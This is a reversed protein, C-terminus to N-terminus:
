TLRMEKQIVMAVLDPRTHFILPLPFFIHFLARCILSPQKERLQHCAARSHCRDTGSRPSLSAVWSSCSVLMNPVLLFPQPCPVPM